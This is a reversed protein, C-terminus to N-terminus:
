GTANDLATKMCSKVADQGLAVANDEIEADTSGLPRDYAADIIADLTGHLGPPPNRTDIKDHWQQREIGKRRGLFVGVAFRGQRRCRKADQEAQQKIQSRLAQRDAPSSEREHAPTQSPIQAM